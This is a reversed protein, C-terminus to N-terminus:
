RKGELYNLVVKVAAELGVLPHLGQILTMEVWREWARKIVSKPIRRKM